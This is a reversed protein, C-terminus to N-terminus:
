HVGDPTFYKYGRRGLGIFFETPTVYQGGAATVRRIQAKPRRIEEVCGAGTGCGRFEVASGILVCRRIFETLLSINTAVGLWCWSSSRLLSM